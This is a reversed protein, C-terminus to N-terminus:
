DNISTKVHSYGNGKSHQTVGHNYTLELVTTELEDAYGMMAISYQLTSQKHMSFYLMENAKVESSPHIKHLLSFSTVKHELNEIRTLVRM